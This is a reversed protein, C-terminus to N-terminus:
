EQSHEDEAHVFLGRVPVGFEAPKLRGDHGCGSVSLQGSNGVTCLWRRGPSPWWERGASELSLIERYAGGQGKDFAKVTM